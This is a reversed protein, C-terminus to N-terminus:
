ELLRKLLRDFFSARLFYDGHATFPGGPSDFAFDEVDNFEPNFVFSLIDQPDYVNLWRKVKLPRAAKGPNSGDAGLCKPM